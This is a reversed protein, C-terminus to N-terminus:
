NIICSFFWHFHFHRFVNLTSLWLFWKNFMKQYFYIHFSMTIGYQEFGTTFVLLLLSLGTFFVWLHEWLYKVVTRKKNFAYKSIVVSEAVASIVIKGVILYKFFFICFTIKKFKHPLYSLETLLRLITRTQRWRAHSYKKQFLFSMFDNDIESLNCMCWFEIDLWLRWMDTFLMLREILRNQVDALIVIQFLLFSSNYM